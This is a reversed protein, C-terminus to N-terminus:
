AITPRLSWFHLKEHPKPIRNKIRAKKSSLKALDTTVATLIANPNHLSSNLRPPRALDLVQRRYGPPIGDADNTAPSPASRRLMGSHSYKQKPLELRFVQLIM